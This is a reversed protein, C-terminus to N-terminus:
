NGDSARRALELLLDRVTMADRLAEYTYHGPCFEYGRGASAVANDAARLAM